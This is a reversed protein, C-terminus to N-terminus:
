FTAILVLTGSAGTGPVPQLSGNMAGDASYTKGAGTVVATKVSDFTLEYQGVATIGPGVAAHWSQGTSATVTLSAQAASDSNAYSRVTPEGVWVIAVSIGPTTGSGAVGFSFGGSNDVSSWATVAPHCDYSGSLAGQLSVSCSASTGGGGGGTSTTSLDCGAIAVTAAAILLCIKV